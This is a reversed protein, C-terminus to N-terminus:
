SSLWSEYGVNPGTRESFHSEAPRTESLHYSDWRLISGIHVQAWSTATRPEAPQQEPSRQNSNQVQSTETRSFASEIIFSACRTYVPAPGDGGVM